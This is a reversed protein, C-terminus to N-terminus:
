LTTSIGGGEKLYIYQNNLKRSNILDFWVKDNEMSTVEKSRNAWFLSSNGSGWELVMKNSFDLNSIYEISPYTYWPIPNNNSDIYEWNTITRYQNYVKSLAKFNILQKTIHIKKDLLVNPIFKKIVSKISM